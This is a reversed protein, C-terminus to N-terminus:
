FILVKSKKLSICKKGQLKKLAQWMNNWTLKENSSDAYDQKLIDAIKSLRSWETEYYVASTINVFARM